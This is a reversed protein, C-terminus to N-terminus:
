LGLAGNFFKAVTESVQKGQVDRPLCHGSRDFWVVEVKGATEAEIWKAVISPITPDAHSHAVLTPCHIKALKSRAHRSIRRLERLSHSHYADYAPLYFPQKTRSSTWFSAWGFLPILIEARLPLRLAPAAVACADILGEAAMTLAIAGGMSLGFMGVLEYSQRARYIEKRAAEFMGEMTMKPFERRQDTVQEYGHGPLIPTVADIGSGFCAEGVPLVGYPTGTFGHLCIVIAKALQESKFYKPRADQWFKHQYDASIAEFGSFYPLGTLTTM